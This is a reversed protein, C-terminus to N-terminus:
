TIRCKKNFFIFNYLMKFKIGGINLEQSRGQYCTSLRKSGHSTFSQTISHIRGGCHHLEWIWGLVKRWLLAVWTIVLCWEFSTKNLDSHFAADVNCKMWGQAPKEWQMSYHQQKTRHHLHQEQQVAHWEEWLQRTKFGLV